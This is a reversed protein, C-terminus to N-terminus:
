LSHLQRVCVCVSLSLLFIVAINVSNIIVGGCVLGDCMEKSNIANEPFHWPTVNLNYVCM